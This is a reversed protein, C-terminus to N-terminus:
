VVPSAPSHQYKQHRHHQRFVTSTFTLVANTIRSVCDFYVSRIHFSKEGIRHNNDETAMYACQGTRYRTTHKTAKGDCKEEDLPMVEDFSPGKM